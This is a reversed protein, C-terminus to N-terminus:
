RVVRFHGIVPLDKMEGKFVNFIGIIALVLLILNGISLVSSTLVALNHSLMSCVEVIIKTVIAYIITSGTLVLGQNVHFRVFKSDQAVFYPILVLLWLYALIAMGKNEEVDLRKQDEIVTIASSNPNCFLCLGNQSEIENGCKHCITVM